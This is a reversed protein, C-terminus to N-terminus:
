KKEGEGDNEAMLKFTFYPGPLITNFLLGTNKKYNNFDEKIIKDNIGHYLAFVGYSLMANIGVYAVGAIAALHKSKDIIKQNITKM